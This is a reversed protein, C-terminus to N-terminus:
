VLEESVKIRFGNQFDRGTMRRHGEVQVELLQLYKEDGTRVAPASHGQLFLSGPKTPGGAIQLSMGPGAIAAKWIRLHKGRFTTFTGPWPNFGRIRNHITASPWGWNVRGDEKKLMPALSAKSDDQKRPSLNHNRISELTELLLEGSLEALTEQITQATDEPSIPIERQSLIDGTDLGQDMRMITVGTKTEGNAIAWQIPAAGRYQPLLSAHANIAGQPPISLIEPPLIKGYAVVVIVDPHLGRILAWVEENRIKEPSHVPIRHKLALAKVPPALPLHHRGVPRDPQTVAGVILHDSQILKSLSPAAFEPTGM